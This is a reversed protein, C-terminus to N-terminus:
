RLPCSRPPRSFSRLASFSNGSSEKQAFRGPLAPVPLEGARSTFKLAAHLHLYRSASITFLRKFNAGAFGGHLVIGASTSSGCSLIRHAKHLIIGRACGDKIDSRMQFPKSGHDGGATQREQKRGTTSVSVHIGKLDKSKSLIKDSAMIFNEARPHCIRAYRLFERM